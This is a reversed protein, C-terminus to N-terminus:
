TEKRCMKMAEFWDLTYNNHIFKEKHPTFCNSCDQHLKNNYCKQKGYPSEISCCSQPNHQSGYFRFHPCACFYCNLMEMDHCKQGKAFLPCFDPEARSLNDYRFYAIIGEKRLGRKQLKAILERHKKGHEEFWSQYSM